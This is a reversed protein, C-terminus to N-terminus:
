PKRAQKTVPILPPFFPDHYEPEIQREAEEAARLARVRRDRIRPHDEFLSNDALQQDLYNVQARAIDAKGRQRAGETIYERGEPTWNWGEKTMDPKVAALPITPAFPDHDVRVGKVGGPLEIIQSASPVDQTTWPPAALRGEPDLYQRTQTNRAETEGASKKYTEFAKAKYKELMQMTGHVKHFEKSPIGLEELEKASEPHLKGTARLQLDLLDTDLGAEKARDLIKSYKEGTEQYSKHFGPFLHRDPNDGGAFGELRQIAHQIEHLGTSTMQSETGMGIRLKKTNPDFSGALGPWIEPSTQINALEPYVHYLEPHDLVSSLPVGNTPSHDISGASTRPRSVQMINKTLPTDPDYHETNKGLRALDDSIEFRMQGDVGQFWGTKAFVEEPHIGRDLMSEAVNLKRLQLDNGVRALAEAGKRGAFMNLQGPTPRVGLGGTAAGVLAETGHEGLDGRKPGTLLDVVGKAADRVMGPMAPAWERGNPGDRTAMPIVSGYDWGPQEALSQRVRDETVPLGQTFGAAEMQAPTMGATTQDNWTQSATGREPFYKDLMQKVTTNTRNNPDQASM